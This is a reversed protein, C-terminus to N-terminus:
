LPVPLTFWFSVGRPSHSEVGIEGLHAEVALKCFSLGIGTSYAFEGRSDYVQSYVDFIGDIKEAPIPDGGNFIILKDYLRGEVELEEVSIRIIGDNNKYKTANSIINSLVRTILTGDVFVSLRESVNNEFTINKSNIAFANQAYAADILDILRFRELHASLEISQYKTVDLINQILNQLDISSALMVQKRKEDITPLKLFGIVNTLPNKLDHVMMHTMDKRFNDLKVLRKNKKELELAQREIKSKQMEIHNKQEQLTETRKNVLDELELTYTELESSLLEVKAYAISTKRSLLFAQTVLLIILGFPLLFVSNIAQIYFLLDNVMILSLFLYSILLPISNEARNLAAKLLFVLFIFILFFSFVLNVSTLYTFVYAPTVLIVLAFTASAIVVFRMLWRPIYFPLMARFFATLFPAIGVLALYEIRTTISWPLFPLLELMLKEGTTSLRLFIFLVTLAFYLLSEDKRQYHYFTINFLLLILLVGLLLAETSARVIKINRIADARGFIMLEGIGGKRHHFNSVQLVLDITEQATYFEFEQRQWSPVSAKKDRAVQGAGGLCEGDVWLRFATEFEKVKLSYMGACPVKIQFHYTAYGFAGVTQGKCELGNWSSPIDVSTCNKPNLSDNLDQPTLLQEWYFDVSGCLPVSKQTSFDVSSFDFVGEEASSCVAHVGSRMQVFYVAAVLFLIFVSGGILILPGNKAITKLSIM